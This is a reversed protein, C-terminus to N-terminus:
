RIQETHRCTPYKTCGLFPGNASSRQSMGSGCKTCKGGGNSAARKPASREGKPFRSSGGGRSRSGSKKGVAFSKKQIEIDPLNIPASRVTDIMKAIWKGQQDMFQDVTVEGSEIKEFVSEWLATMDPKSLEGPLAAVLAMAAPEPIYVEEKARANAKETRILGLKGLKPVFTHRTAPTGIGFAADAAGAKKNALMREFIKKIEPDTVFKHINEMAENLTSDTFRDPPTTRKADINLGACTAQEGNVISPLAGVNVKDEADDGAEAGYLLKWGPSVQTTGTAKFKEGEVEAVAVVSRYQYPAMFQAMYRKCIEKYVNSEIPTMTSLNPHKMTPVIAHHATVKSTNWAQSKTKADYQLATVGGEVQGGVVDKIADLIKPAAALQAEPLYQSDSRPYTTLKREYLSQLAELTADSRYGYKKSMLQQIKGVSFLLDPGKRKLEDKYDIITGARGNVKAHVKRVEAQDIVRGESDKGPQHESPQWQANFTGGKVRIQATMGHHDTPVFNKIDLERQVILGLIPTQVRGISIYSGFGSAKAQLTVARSFNMGSTWDARSRALAANSMGAFDKNDRENRLAEAVPEENLDSILVRRTPKKSAGPIERLIEDVLLQGERDPDGANVVVTAQAVLGKITNVLSRKSPDVRLKWDNAGPLLPLHNFSWSFKGNSGKTASPHIREIYYDPDAMDYIHGAAWCVAWSKGRIFERGSEVVPSQQELVTAIARGLNPKEAVYVKM